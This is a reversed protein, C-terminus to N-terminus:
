RGGLYSLLRNLNFQTKQEDQARQAAGAAGTAGMAYGPSELGGGSTGLRSIFDGLVTSGSSAYALGLNALMRMPDNQARLQTAFQEAQQNLAAKSAANADAYRGAELDYQTRLKLAADRAENDIKAYLARKRPDDAGPYQKDVARKAAQSRAYIEDAAQDAATKAEGTVRRRLEDGGVNAQTQANPDVGGPTGSNNAPTGPQGTNQVGPGPNLVGTVQNFQTGPPYVRRKSPDKISVDEPHVLYGDPLGWEKPAPVPRAPLGSRDKLTVTTQTPSAAASQSSRFTGGPEITGLPAGGAGTVLGRGDPTPTITANPPVTQQPIASVAASQQRAIGPTPNNTTVTGPTKPTLDPTQSGNAIPTSRPPAPPKVGGLVWSGAEGAREQGPAVVQRGYTAPRKKPDLETTGPMSNRVAQDQALM